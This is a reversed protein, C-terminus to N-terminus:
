RSGFMAQRAWSAALEYRALPEDAAGHGLTELAARERRRMAFACSYVGAAYAVAFASAALLTLPLKRM